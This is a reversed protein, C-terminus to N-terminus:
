TAEEQGIWYNNPRIYSESRVAVGAIDVLESANVLVITAPAHFRDRYVDLAAAIKAIVAKKSDDYILLYTM